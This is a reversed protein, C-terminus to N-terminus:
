KTINLEKFWAAVQDLTPKSGYAKRYTMGVAFLETQKCEPPNSGKITQTTFVEGTAVDYLTIEWEYRLRYLTHGGDYPCSQIQKEKEVACAVYHLQGPTEAALDKPLQIPILTILGFRINKNDLGFIPLEPRKGECVMSIAATIQETAELSNSAAYAALIKERTANAEAKINEAQATDAVEQVKALARNFDNKDAIGIAQKLYAKAILLNVDTGSQSIEAAQQYNKIANDINGIEVQMDGWNIYVNVLEEKIKSARASDSEFYALASKLKQEAEAYNQAEALEKEWALYTQLIEERASEATPDAPYMEILQQLKDIGSGYNQGAILEKAWTSLAGVTQENMGAAFVGNPYAALYGQSLTVVTEWNELEVAQEVNVKFTCETYQDYGTFTSSFIGQPYLSVFYRYQVVAECKQQAFAQNIQGNFYFGGGIYAGVLLAFALCAGVIILIDRTKSHKRKPKKEPTQSKEPKSTEFPPLSPLAPKAQQNVAPPTNSESFPSTSFPPPAPKASPLDAFPPPSTKKAPPEAFPSVAPSTTFASSSKPADAAFPSSSFPSPASKGAPQQLPQGSRNKLFNLAQTVQPNGPNHQLCSELVRIKDNDRPFLEAQWMWAQIHNPNKLLFPELISLAADKKGAKILRIVAALIEDNTM